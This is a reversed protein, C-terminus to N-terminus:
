RHRQRGRAQSDKGAPRLNARSRSDKQELVDAAHELAAHFDALSKEDVFHRRVSNKGIRGVLARCRYLMSESAAKDTADLSEFKDSMTSCEFYACNCYGNSAKNIGRIRSTGM